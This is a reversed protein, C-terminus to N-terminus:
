HKPKKPCNKCRKKGPKKYKKCCKKKFCIMMAMHEEGDDSGTIIPLAIFSAPLSRQRMSLYLTECLYPFPAITRNGYSGYPDLM